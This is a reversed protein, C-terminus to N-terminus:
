AQITRGRDVERLERLKRYLTRETIGLLEALARNTGSFETTVRRLYIQEAQKLSIINDRPSARQRVEPVSGTRIGPLHEATITDGECLLVAREIFNGLERVNGPYDYSMLLRWASDDFKLSRGTENRALMSKALVEIDAPRERLPPLRIPFASIRFYLDERFLGEAVRSELDRNTACVLRFDSPICHPSGVRRFCTSEIVRLLKVQLHVPIEGVEDLFLTGGAAEEVLGSKRAHAGTFAGKEHGFLESEFLSETIGSCDVPVFRHSRRRSSEHIARAVVEKGTGSEGTLLITTETPAAKHVLGLVRNFEASRAVLLSGHPKASAIRSARIIEVFGAIGDDGRIPYIAVDEHEEGRPTVHVHHTEVPRAEDACRDIPCEEGSMGCPVELDHSVEFCLRGLPDDGFDFLNRYAANCAFITRDPTIFVAPDSLYDLM